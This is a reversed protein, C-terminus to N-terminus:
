NRFILIFYLKFDGQPSSKRSTKIPPHKSIVETNHFKVTELHQCLIILQRKPHPLLYIKIEVQPVVHKITSSCQLEPELLIFVAVNLPNHLTTSGSKLWMHYTMRGQHCKNRLVPFSGTHHSFWICYRTRGPPSWGSDDLKTRDRQLHLTTIVYDRWIISYIKTKCGGSTPHNINRTWWLQSPYPYCNIENWHVEFALHSKTNLFYKLHALLKKHDKLSM